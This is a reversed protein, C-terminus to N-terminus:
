EKKKRKREKKKDKGIGKIPSPPERKGARPPPPPRKDCPEMHSHKEHTHTDPSFSQQSGVPQVHFLFFAPENNNNNLRNNNSNGIGLCSYSYKTEILAPCAPRCHGTDCVLLRSSATELRSSSIPFRDSPGDPTRSEFKLSYSPKIKSEVNM